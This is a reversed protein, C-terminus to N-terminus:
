SRKKMLEWGKLLDLARDLQYDKEAAGAAAAAAGAGGQPRVKAPAAVPQPVNLHNDLDKEHFNEGLDGKEVKLEANGVVIDPIIGQAQISRGKPTYYLATTLKLGAGNPLGIVTQVSGKGFSTTGMIVARHYDQLAGAVIESASATGGNILVVIPYLPEKEGLTANYDHRGVPERGKTYVVLGNDLRDGVFRGAVQVASDLLGGPNNRLDIVLGQLTGGNEARLKRLAAAFDEGTREQFHGIRVYGYGPALTRAKLSRTKIIDRVLPFVLPRDVGQRIITLTVRTGKEGRMRKVAETITLGRTFTNDIKWIYDGAKIGARWAPTDEIPAVVTLRDDKQSIEIGLGGFSGSIEVKMEAFPEPPLYESHPDLAALMGNIAGELLKKTPVKEVYDSRVEQLVQRFLQLYEVDQRRPKYSYLHWGIGAGVGLIVLTAVLGLTIKTRSLM